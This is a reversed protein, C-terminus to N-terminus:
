SSYSIPIPMSTGTWQNESQIMELFPNRRYVLEEINDSYLEKLIALQTLSHSYEIIPQVAVSEFTPLSLEPLLAKPIALAAGTGLLGKLFGRRNM